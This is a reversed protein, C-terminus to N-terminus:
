KEKKAQQILMRIEQADKKLLQMEKRIRTGAAKNNKSYFKIVDDELDLMQKKMTEYLKMLDMTM